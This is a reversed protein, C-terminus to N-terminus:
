TSFTGSHNDNSRGISRINQVCRQCSGPSHISHNIDTQRALIARFNSKPSEKEQFIEARAFFLVDYPYVPASSTAIQLSAANLDMSSISLPLFSFGIIQM